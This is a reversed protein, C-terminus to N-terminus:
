VTTSSTTASSASVTVASSTEATSSSAQVSSQASVVFILTTISDGSTPTTEVASTSSSSSSYQQRTSPTSSVSIISSSTQTSSSAGDITGSPSITLAIYGYLGASPNGCSDGPYGPCPDNCWNTQKQESPAYDSCWCNAGQLVAFAYSDQCKVQCSGDSQFENYVPRLPNAQLTIRSASVKYRSSLWFGGWYQRPLLLRNYRWTRAHRFLCAPGRTASNKSSSVHQTKAQGEAHLAECFRFDISLLHSFGITNRTKEVFIDVKGLPRSV